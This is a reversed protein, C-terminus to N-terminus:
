GSASIVFGSRHAGRYLSRAAWAGRVRHTQLLLGIEDEYESAVIITDHENRVALYDVLRIKPIEDVTGAEYSDIFATVVRGLRTLEARVFRGSAGSGYVYIPRDAPIQEFFWLRRMGFGLGTM